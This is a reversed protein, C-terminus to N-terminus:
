RFNRICWNRMLEGTGWLRRQIREWINLSSEEQIIRSISTEEQEMRKFFKERHLHHYSDSIIARNYKMAQIYDIKKVYLRSQIMQWVTKGLDSQISLLSVGENTLFRADDTMHEIGWCDGMMFDGIRQKKRFPCKYCSARMYLGSLFGQLYPNEEVNSLYVNGNEFLVKMSYKTWGMKKDRFRLDRVKSKDPTIERLFRAWVAPSPVGHCVFEATLLYAINQKAVNRLGAVQCPTGVFLVYKKERLLKQIERFVNRLNSQVYKSGRLKALEAADEIGVHHLTHYTGDFTAGFVVGGNKLVQEALVSFVGGSSSDMRNSNEVSYCAYVERVSRTEVPNMLPCAKECLRCSICKGADIAPHFFGEDDQQMVIAGTPCVSFCASCGTCSIKDVLM